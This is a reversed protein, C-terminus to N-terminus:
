PSSSSSSSTRLETSSSSDSSPSSASYGESSSSSNSSPSSESSSSTSSSSMGMEATTLFYSVYENMLVTWSTAPNTAAGPAVDSLSRVIFKPFTSNDFKRINTTIELYFEIESDTVATGGTNLEPSLIGQKLTAVVQYTRDDEDHYVNITGM